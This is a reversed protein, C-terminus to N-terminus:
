LRATVLRSSPVATGDSLHDTHRCSLKPPRYRCTDNNGQAITERTVLPVNVQTLNTLPNAIFGNVMLKIIDGKEQYVLRALLFQTAGLDRQPKLGMQPSPVRVASPREEGKDLFHHAPEILGACKHLDSTIDIADFQLKGGRDM